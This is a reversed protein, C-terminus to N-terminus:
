LNPRPLIYPLCSISWKCRPTTRQIPLCCWTNITKWRLHEISLGLYVPEKRKKFYIKDM